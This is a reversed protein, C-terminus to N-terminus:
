NTYIKVLLSGNTRCTVVSYGCNLGTQGRELPQSSWGCCKARHQATRVPEASSSSLFFFDGKGRRHGCHCRAGPVATGRRRLASPPDGWHAEAGLQGPRESCRCEYQLLGPLRPRLAPFPLGLRRPQLRHASVSCLRRYHSPQSTACGNSCSHSSTVWSDASRWRAAASAWGQPGPHLCIADYPRLRHSRLDDIGGDQWRINKRALWVRWRLHVVSQQVAEFESQTSRKKM